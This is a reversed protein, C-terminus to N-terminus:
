ANGKKIYLTKSQQQATRDRKLKQTQQTQIKTQIHTIKNIWTKNNHKQTKIINKHITNVKQKIIPRKNYAAM